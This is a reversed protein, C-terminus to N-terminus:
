HELLELLVMFGHVSVLAVMLHLFISVQNQEYTTRFGTNKNVHKLPEFNKICPTYLTYFTSKQQSTQVSNTNLDDSTM